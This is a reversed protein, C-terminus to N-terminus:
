EYKKLQEKLFEDDEFYNIGMANKVESLTANAYENAVKTGDKLIDVVESIRQEYYNRRERIPELLDELVYNLFKKIKM